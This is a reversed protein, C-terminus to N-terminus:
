TASVTESPMRAVEVAAVPVKVRGSGPVMEGAEAEVVAAEEM